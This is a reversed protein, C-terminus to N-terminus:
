KNFKALQYEYHSIDEGQERALELAQKGLELAKRKDGLKHLLSAYTDINSATPMENVISKAWKGAIELQSKNEVFLYFKWAIDGLLEHDNLGSMGVWEIAYTGYDDWDESVEAYHFKMMTKLTDSGLFVLPDIADIIARMAFDHLEDAVFIEQYQALFMDYIKADVSRKGHREGLAKQNNVLYKFHESYIDWHFNAFVAWGVQDMIANRQLIELAIKEADQCSMEMAELYALVEDIGAEESQYMSKLSRLNQDESLAIEGLILLESAEMAGCGRHVIQEQDNLFLLTPYVNVQYNEVMEIGPYEEMDLRVNIFNENFFDAVESDTFTYKELVKCPECWTTYADLFILKSEEKAMSKAQEWSTEFQVQAALFIPFFIAAIVLPHKM